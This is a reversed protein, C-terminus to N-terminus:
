GEPTRGARAAPEGGQSPRVGPKPQPWLCRVYPGGCVGEFIIGQLLSLTREDQDCAPQDLAKRLPCPAVQKDATGRPHNQGGVPTAM